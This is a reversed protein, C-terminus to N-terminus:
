LIDIDGCGVQVDQTVKQEANANDNGGNNDVNEWSVLVPPRFEEIWEARNNERHYNADGAHWNHLLTDVDQHFAGWFSDLGTFHKLIDFLQLVDDGDVVIVAPREALALIGHAGVDDNFSFCHCNKLFCCLNRLLVSNFEHSNLHFILCHVVLAILLCEHVACLLLVIM